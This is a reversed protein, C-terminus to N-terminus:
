FAEAIERILNNDRCFRLKRCIKEWANKKRRNKVIGWM